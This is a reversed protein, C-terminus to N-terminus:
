RFAQAPTNVLAAATSGPHAAVYEEILRFGITYGTWRPLVPDVDFFWRAHNYSPSDFEPRALEIWAATESRPFADSWPPAPVGLLEIAFHDAMGESVMAELLTRGYGPGRFRAVHHLEHAVLPELKEAIVSAIGTFGPDVYMEVTRDNLTRGGIGYGSIARAPDAIITVTTGGVDLIPRVKAAAATAAAQAQTSLAGLTGGPDVIRITIPANSDPATSTSACASAAVALLVSRAFARRMM